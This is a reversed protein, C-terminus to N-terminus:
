EDASGGEADGTAAATAPAGPLEAASLGKERDLLNLAVWAQAHAAGVQAGTVIIDPADLEATASQYASILDEELRIFFQVQRSLDAKADFAELAPYSAPDDSADPPDVGLQDLAEGLATAHEGAFGGLQDFLEAADGSQEEAALSYALEAAQELEVVPELADTEDSGQALAPTALLASPLAAGAAAAGSRALLQRRTTGGPSLSM